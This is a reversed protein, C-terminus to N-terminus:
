FDSFEWRMSTWCKTGALAGPPKSMKWPWLSSFGGHTPCTSTTPTTRTGSRCQRLCRSRMRASSTYIRDPLRLLSSSSIHSSTNPHHILVHPSWLDISHHSYLYNCVDLATDSLWSTGKFYLAWLNWEFVPESFTKKLSKMRKSRFRNSFILFIFTRTSSSVKPLSYKPLKIEIFSDRRYSM